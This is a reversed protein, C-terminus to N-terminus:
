THTNKRGHSAKQEAANPSADLHVNLRWDPDAFPDNGGLHRPPPPEWAAADERPEPSVSIMYELGRRVLEALSIDREKALRKAQRYIPDPLQIQTRTM